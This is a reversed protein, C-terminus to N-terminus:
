HASSRPWVTIIDAEEEVLYYSLRCLEDPPWIARGSRLDFRYGHVPCEIRGRYLLGSGLDGSAHPCAAAFGIAKGELRTLLVARGALEIPTLRDEEVTSAPVTVSRAPTSATVAAANHAVAPL